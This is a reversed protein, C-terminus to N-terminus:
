EMIGDDWGVGGYYEEELIDGMRRWDFKKKVLEKGNEGMRKMMAKDELLSIAFEAVQKHNKPEAIFGTEGDIVVEPTGDLDFGIAPKGSALAQVIARPLGERLSLHIMLDCISIYKYVESPPVLGSFVFNLGLKEAQNKVDETMIGDGVILFHIDPFKETIKKAAPVLYEYGKLPFLRAVTCVVPVNEPIALDKRLECNLKVSESEGSKLFNELEMGSYVPMYKEPPAINADLCQKIMAEAVAFIKHCRRAAWRESAKYIFNKFPTEYRHFAQGHVTHCVFPVRAAWAAARGIVGAKSSHTHVVDAKCERLYQKLSFYAAIDHYPSLQRVLHPNVVTEFDPINKNKLLEGEPGPSEGTILIVEHGKNVHDVITLLTNEQAGGVIMRTIIHCIKLKKNNESSM